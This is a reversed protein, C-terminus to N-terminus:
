APTAPPLTAALIDGSLEALGAAGGREIVTSALENVAGVFAIAALPELGPRGRLERLHQEVLAALRRIVRARRARAASGAAMVEVVCARAAVPEEAWFGAFAEVFREVRERASGGAATAEAVYAVAHDAVDDYAALFCDDKDVFVDYFTRRSMGAQRIVKEVSTAHFGVQAVVDVMARLLRDRQIRLVIARDLGHHGAFIRANPAPWLPQRPSAGRVLQLAADKSLRRLTSCSPASLFM